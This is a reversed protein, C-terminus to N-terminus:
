QKNVKNFTDQIVASLVTLLHATNASQQKDLPPVASVSLGTM